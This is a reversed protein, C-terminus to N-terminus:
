PSVSATSVARRRSPTPASSTLDAVARGIRERAAQACAGGNISTGRYRETTTTTPSTSVPSFWTAAPRRPIKTCRRQPRPLPHRPPAQPRAFTTCVGHVASPCKEGAADGSKGRNEVLWDRRPTHTTESSGTLRRTTNGFLPCAQPSGTCLGRPSHTAPPCDSPGGRPGVEDVPQPSVDAVCGCGASRPPLRRAGSSQPRTRSLTVTGLSHVPSCGRNQPHHQPRACSEFAPTLATREATTVVCRGRPVAGCAGARLGGCSPATVRPQGLRDPSPQGPPLDVPCPRGSRGPGSPTRHVPPGRRGAPATSPRGPSCHAPRPRGGAGAPPAGPGGGHAVRCPRRRGPAPGRQQPASVPASVPASPGARPGPRPRDGRRARRVRGPACGPGPGHAPM